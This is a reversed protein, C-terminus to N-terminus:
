ATQPPGSYNDTWDSGNFYRWRGSGAPDPYWGAPSLPPQITAARYDDDMYRGSLSAGRNMWNTGDFLRLYHLGLPDPYWGVRAARGSNRLRMARIIWLIILASAIVLAGTGLTMQLVEGTGRPKQNYGAGFTGAALFLLAAAVVFFIGIRVLGYRKIWGPFLRPRLYQDAPNPPALRDPQV